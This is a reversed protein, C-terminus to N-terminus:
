QQENLQIEFGSYELMRFIKRASVFSCNEYVITKWEM